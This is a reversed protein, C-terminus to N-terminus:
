LEKNDIDLVAVIKPPPSGAKDRLKYEELWVKLLRLEEYPDKVGIYSM